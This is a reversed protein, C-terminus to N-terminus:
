VCQHGALLALRGNLARSIHFHWSNPQPLTPRVSFITLTATIQATGGRSVQDKSNSTPLILARLCGLKIQYDFM